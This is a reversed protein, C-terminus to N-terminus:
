EYVGHTEIFDGFDTNIHGYEGLRGSIGSSSVTIKKLIDEIRRNTEELQKVRSLAGGLESEASEARAIASDSESRVQAILEASDSYGRFYAVAWLSSAVIAGALFILIYKQM